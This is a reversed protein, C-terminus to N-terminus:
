VKNCNFLTTTYCISIISAIFSGVLRCFFYFRRDFSFFLHVFKSCYSVSRILIFSSTILLNRFRFSLMCIFHFLIKYSLGFCIVFPLLQVWVCLLCFPIIIGSLFFPLPFIFVLSIVDQFISTICSTISLFLVFPLSIYLM